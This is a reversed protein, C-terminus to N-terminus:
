RPPAPRHRAALRRPASPRPGASAGPVSGARPSAQLHLGRSPGLTSGARGPVISGLTWDPWPESHSKPTRDTGHGGPIVTGPRERRRGRILWRSRRPRRYQSVGLPELFDRLLIEGPHVPALKKTMSVGEARLPTGNMAARLCIEGPPSCPPALGWGLALFGYMGGAKPAVLHSEPQGPGSSEMFHRASRRRQNSTPQRHNTFSKM